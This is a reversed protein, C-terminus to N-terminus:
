GLLVEFMTGGGERALCRADGGHARAIQRVLALGLGYGEGSEASGPPRYFPEFIRERESEPVGPGRDAVSLRAGPGDSEVRAEVASGAGHRRANELLNRVLRRLLRADGRLVVPVGEVDAGSRAAEEAVLALLDVAEARAGQAELRSAELLEGILGDLEALDRRARAKLAPDAAMMELAVSLRALPSRLEHSAFALMRRQAMVLAEIREAASNFSRALAAVEDRGEIPARAELKGGGLDEVRQRLRELRGTLRRSLPWAGLAVAAALLALSTLFFRHTRAPAHLSRAVFFRGDPLRLAVALGHGRPRVWHSEALGQHPAPLRRGASALRTGDAAFVAIDLRLRDALRAVAEQLEHVPRDAPPLLEAVTAAYGAALDREEGRAPSLMWAASILVAFLLLAGVVTLYIQHSLRRM